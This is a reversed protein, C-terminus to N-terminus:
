AFVNCVIAHQLMIPRATTNQLRVMNASLQLISSAAADEQATQTSTQYAAASSRPHGAFTPPLLPVTLSSTAENVAGSSPSAASLASVTQPAAEVPGRAQSLLPQLQLQVPQSASPPLLEMAATYRCPTLNAHGPFPFPSPPPSRNGREARTKRKSTPPRRTAAQSTCYNPAFRRAYTM